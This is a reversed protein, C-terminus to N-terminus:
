VIGVAGTIWVILLGAALAIAAAIRYATSASKRFVLELGLGVGGLMGAAFAFDFTTWAVEDTFRMAVVPTLLALAAAVWFVLTWRSGGGATKAAMAAGEQHAPIWGM